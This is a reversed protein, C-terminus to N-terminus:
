RQDASWASMEALSAIPTHRLSSAVSGVAMAVLLVGVLVRSVVRRSIRRGGAVLYGLACCLAPAPFAAYHDYFSPSTAIMLLHACAISAITARETWTRHRAAGLLIVLCYLSLGVVLVGVLALVVPHQPYPGPGFYELRELLTMGEQPRGLQTSVIMRWMRIPAALFFPLGLACGGIVVGAFFSRPLKGQRTLLIIAGILLVDVAAWLKVMVALGLLVGAAFHRRNTPMRLALLATMLLLNLAPELMLMQEAFAPANWVAYMGGAAVMALRGHPRMFWAVLAATVAGMVMSTVTALGVAFADGVVAGVMAFPVLAVVVGPPHLFVFDRYPLDGWLYSASAAYMVYPDYGAGVLISSIPLYRSLRVLLAVVGIAVVIRRDGRTLTAGARSEPQALKTM